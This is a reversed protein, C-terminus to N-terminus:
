AGSTWATRSRTAAGIYRPTDSEHRDLRGFVLGHEAADLAVIRHTHLEVAAEREGVAQPNHPVLALADDLRGVSRARVEDLRDFLATVYPQEAAIGADPADAARATSLHHRKRDSIRQPAERCGGM